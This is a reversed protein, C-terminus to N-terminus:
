PKVKESKGIIKDIDKWDVCDGGGRNTRKMDMREKAQDLIAYANGYADIKDLSSKSEVSKRPYQKFKATQKAILEELQEKASKM